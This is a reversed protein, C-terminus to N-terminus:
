LFSILLIIIAALLTFIDIAFLSVLIDPVFAKVCLDVSFWASDHRLVHSASNVTQVNRAPPERVRALLEPWRMTRRVYPNVCIITM